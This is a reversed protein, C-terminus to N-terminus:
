AGKFLRTVSVFIYLVFIYILTTEEKKKMNDLVFM